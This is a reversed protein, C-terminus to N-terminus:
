RVVLGCLKAQLQEKANIYTLDDPSVYNGRRHEGEKGEFTHVGRVVTSRDFKFNPILNRLMDHFKGVGVPAFIGSDMCARYISGWRLMKDDLDYIKYIWCAVYATDVDEILYELLIDHNLCNAECQRLAWTQQVESIGAQENEKM